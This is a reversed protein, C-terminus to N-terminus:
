KLEELERLVKIISNRLYVNIYNKQEEINEFDGITEREWKNIINAKTEESFLDELDWINM